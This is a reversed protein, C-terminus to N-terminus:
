VYEEDIGSTHHAAKEGQLAEGHLVTNNPYNETIEM